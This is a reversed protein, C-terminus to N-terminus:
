PYVTRYFSPSAANDTVTFLGDSGAQATTFRTWTGPVSSAREIGYVYGPIGAFTVTFTGSGSDYSYSVVNPSVGSNVTNTVYITPSATCGNVDTITYTFNDTGATGPATYTITGAGSDLVASGGQASPSQVATVSLGSGTARVLLKDTYFVLPQNARDGAGTDPATPPTNVTLTEPPSSTIAGCANTVVCDYSAADALTVSLNTYSANTADLIAVTNTRWQYFLSATGTVNTLTFVVPSGACVNAGAPDIGGVIAPATCCVVTPVNASSSSGCQTTTNTVACGLSVSGLGGSTYTISSGAAGGQITGNSITWLYSVGSQVPASATNTTSNACTDAAATITSDPVANFNVTVNASSPTCTGNSITWTFVYTGYTSVTATSSGSTSASFTVSGPGSNKTWAGSGVSPTNGGLGSSVLAGCINQTGGATATTPTQYYNVTVDAYTDLSNDTCSNNHITWRFDYTGYTDVTATSTGSNAASFTVNGPGSFKTWTGAGITPTNGGLSGSILGCVNLPTTTITATTPQTCVVNLYLESGSIQLSATTYAALGSGGVTVSGPVSGAVSGGTGKSILKYSGVGLASGSVTVTTANANLTLAGGTVNMAPTGSVYTMTLLAGSNLTLAGNITAGGSAGGGSLTKGTTVTYPPSTVGLVDFTATAGITISTSSSIAGSGSLALTGASITTAGAYLNAGAFTQTGSGTKTVTMAHSTGGDLVGLYNPSQGAGPNLTLVTVATPLTLNASGKLGGFTPTTAGSETLTGGLWNLASNQLALNNNVALTGTSVRTDGSFTNAGSLTVTGSGTKILGGANYSLASNPIVVKTPHQTPSSWELACQSSTTAKFYDLRLDYKQGATLAITGSQTSLAGATWHNFLQTGNVTLRTGDTADTYFTYTETSDPTVQGNWSVSYYNALGATSATWAISAPCTGNPGTTATLTTGSSNDCKWYGVLGTETGALTTLMTQQIQAQTRAINWVRVEDLNGQFYEASAGNQGLYLTSSSNCLVPTASSWTGRGVLAGNVFLQYGTATVVCAVHYWTNVNYYVAGDASTTLWASGTGIDAKVRNGGTFKLDFNNASTGNRSGFFSLNATTAPNAWCEVTFPAQVTGLTNPISAGYGTSAGNCVLANGFSPTTEPSGSGWSFNVTSDAETKYLGVMNTQAYYYDGLLGSGSVSYTAANDTVAASMTVNGTGGVTLPVDNVNVGGNVTITRGSSDATLAVPGYVSVASSLTLTGATGTLTLPGDLEVAAPFTCPGSVVKGGGSGVTLGTATAISTTGDSNCTAGNDLRYGDSYFTASGALTPYTVANATDHIFTGGNIIWYKGCYITVYSSAVQDLSGPGDMILPAGSPVNLAVAGGSSSIYRFTLTCGSAITLRGSSLVLYYGSASNGGTASILYGTTNVTLSNYTTSLSARYTVAGSAGGLVADDTTAIAATGPCSGADPSEWYNNYLYGVGGGNGVGSVCGSTSYWYKTSARAPNVGIFTCLVAVLLAISKNMITMNLQPNLKSAQYLVQRAFCLPWGLPRAFGSVSRAAVAGMSGRLSGM